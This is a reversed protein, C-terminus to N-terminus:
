SYARKGRGFVFLTTYNEFLVLSKNPVIWKKEGFVNKNKQQLKGKKSKEKTNTKKWCVLAFFGFAMKKSYRMKSMRVVEPFCTKRGM